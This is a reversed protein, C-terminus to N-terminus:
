YQPNSKIEDYLSHLSSLIEVSRQKAHDSTSGSRAVSVMAQKAMAVSGLLANHKHVIDSKPNRAM